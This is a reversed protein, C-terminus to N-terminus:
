IHVDSGEGVAFYCEAFDVEVYGAAAHFVHVGDGAEGKGYFTEGLVVDGEEVADEGVVEACCVFGL